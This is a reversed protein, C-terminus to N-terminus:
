DRTLINLIMVGWGLTYEFDFLSILSIQIGMFTLILIKQLNHYM